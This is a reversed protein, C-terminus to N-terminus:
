SWFLPYSTYYIDDMCLFSKSNFSNTHFFVHSLGLTITSFSYFLILFLVFGFHLQGVTVGVDQTGLHQTDFLDLLLSGLFSPVCTSSTNPSRDFAGLFM